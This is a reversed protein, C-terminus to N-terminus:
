GRLDHNSDKKAMSVLMKRISTCPVHKRGKESKARDAVKIRSTKHCYVSIQTMNTREFFCLDLRLNYVLSCSTDFSLRLSKGLILYHIILLFSDPWLRCYACMCIYLVYYRCTLDHIAENYAVGFEPDCFPSLYPALGHIM